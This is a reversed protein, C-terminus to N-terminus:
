AGIPENLISVSIYTLAHLTHQGKEIFSKAQKILTLKSHFPACMNLNTSSNMRKWAIMFLVYGFLDRSSFWIYGAYFPLLAKYTWSKLGTWYRKVILTNSFNQGSRQTWSASFGISDKHVLQKSKNKLSYMLRRKPFSIGIM